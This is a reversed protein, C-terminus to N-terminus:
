GEAEEMARRGLVQMLSFSVKLRHRHQSALLARLRSPSARGEVGPLSCPSPHPASCHLTGGQFPGLPASDSDSTRGAGGGVERDLGLLSKPM